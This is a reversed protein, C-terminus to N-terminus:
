SWAPDAQGYAPPLHPWRLPHGDLLGPPSIGSWGNGLDCRYRDAQFLPDEDAASETPATGQDLLWQATRALSLSVRSAEGTRALRALATLAGAAILYGTAHDLLQCPLAGPRINGASTEWGPVPSSLTLAVSRSANGLTSPARSGFTRYETASPM